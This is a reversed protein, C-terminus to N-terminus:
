ADAKGEGSPIVRAAQREVHARVVESMEQETAEGAFWRRMVEGEEPSLTADKEATHEESM